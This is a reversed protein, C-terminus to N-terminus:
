HELVIRYRAKNAKVRAIAENVKQVPMLEIKAQIGHRASFELMERIGRRNGIVSGCLTKDGIILSFPPIKMDSPPVGVICFKGKPRLLDM